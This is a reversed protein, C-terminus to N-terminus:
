FAEDLSFGVVKHSKIIDSYFGASAKPTRARKPDNFDVHYLGFRNSYGATWEFNDMLSWANYGTIRVGDENIARSVATLHGRFYKIREYDKLVEDSDSDMCGNETI